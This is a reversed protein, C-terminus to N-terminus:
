CPLHCKTYVLCMNKLLINTNYFSFKINYDYDYYKLSACSTENWLTTTFIQVGIKAVTKLTLMLITGVKCILFNAWSLEIAQGCCVCFFHYFSVKPGPVESEVRNPHRDYVEQSVVEHRSVTAHLREPDFRSHPPGDGGEQAGCIQGTSFDSTLLFLSSTSCLRRCPGPGRVEIERRGWNGGCPFSLQNQRERWQGGTHKWSCSLENDSCECGKRGNGLWSFSWFLPWQSTWSRGTKQFDAFGALNRWSGVRMKVEELTVPCVHNPPPDPILPARLWWELGCWVAWGGGSSM